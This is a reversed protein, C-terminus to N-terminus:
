LEPERQKMLESVDDGAMGPGIEIVQVVRFAVVHFALGVLQGAVPQEVGLFEVLECMVRPGMEGLVRDKDKGETTTAVRADDNTAQVVILEHGVAVESYPQGFHLGVKRAPNVRRDSRVHTKATQVRPQPVISLESQARPQQALPRM